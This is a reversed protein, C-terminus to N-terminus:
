DIQHPPIYIVTIGKRKRNEFEFALEIKSGNPGSRHFVETPYRFLSVPM